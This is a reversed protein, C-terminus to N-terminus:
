AFAYLAAVALPVSTVGVLRAARGARMWMLALWALTALALALSLVVALRGRSATAADYADKGAGAAGVALLLVVLGTLYFFGRKVEGWLPTLFLFGAGGAATEALVLAMIGAPGKM